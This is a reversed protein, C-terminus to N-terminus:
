LEKESKFFTENFKECKKALFEITEPASKCTEHIWVLYGVYRRCIENIVELHRLVLPEEAIVTSNSDSADDFPGHPKM